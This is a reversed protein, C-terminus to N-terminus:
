REMCKCMRHEKGDADVHICAGCIGEGCCMVANNSYVAKEKPILINKQYYDSACLVVVDYKEVLKTMDGLPLGTYELSRLSCGKLCEEAFARNVKDLDAVVDIRDRGTAWRCYASVPAIGVGKSMCLVSKRRGSILKEAGLLGNCYIGRVQMFSEAALLRRSKPGCMRVALEILGTEYDARMVSVPMDFSEPDGAARAFVCSGPVSSKEAFGRPAELRIVALDKGYWIKKQIRYLNGTRRGAPVSGNQLFENYVCIGQWSCSCCDKGSLRSCILCRDCSALVCPCNVSGADACTRFEEAM